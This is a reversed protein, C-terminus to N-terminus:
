HKINKIKKELLVYSFDSLILTDVARHSFYIKIIIAKRIMNINDKESVKIEINTMEELFLENRSVNYYSADCLYHYEIKKKVM